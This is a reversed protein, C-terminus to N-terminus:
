GHKLLDETTIRAKQPAVEGGAVPIPNTDPNAPIIASRLLVIVAPPARVGGKLYDYFREKIDDILSADYAQDNQFKM